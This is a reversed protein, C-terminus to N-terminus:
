SRWIGGAAADGVIRLPQGGPVCNYSELDTVGARALVEEDLLCKGQVEDRPLALAALLADCLIAPKRWQAPGGLGHNITAASEIATAPWLAFSRLGHAGCEQALGPAMMSMALKSLGYALKGGLFRLDLPPAIQVVTGGGAALLHPLAFHVACYAGRVNVGHVLDFRKPPTDEIPRWWLAGANNVLLDVRGFEAAAAAVMAEVEADSRLDTRVALARRGLARVEDATEHISGPLRDRGKESKAAVVVDAGAGALALALAKGIGRSAGTVIAAKGTLDPRPPASM